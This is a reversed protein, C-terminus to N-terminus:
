HGSGAQLFRKKLKLIRKFRFHMDIYGSQGTHGLAAADGYDTIVMRYVMMFTGLCGVTDVLMQLLVLTRLSWSPCYLAM